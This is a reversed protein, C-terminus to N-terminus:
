QDDKIINLRFEKEDLEVYFLKIHSYKKDSKLLDVLEHKNEEQMNFGLIIGKICDLPLPILCIEQTEKKIKNKCERLTYFMRWEQEYEWHDSKVCLLNNILNDFNESDSLNTDFFIFEPRQQSYRVKILHERLEKYNTRQDFFRHKDDFEIVFGKHKNAYHAWMLLNCPKETLSLVGIERNVANKLMPLMFQRSEPTELKLMSGVMETIMPKCQYMTEKLCKKIFEEPKIGIVKEMQEESINQNHQSRMENLVDELIQKAKEETIKEVHDEDWGLDDKHTDIYKSDGSSKFYPNLEFPDNFESPQTFRIYANQIIDIRDETV